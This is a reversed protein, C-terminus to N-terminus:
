GKKFYDFFHVAHKDVCPLCLAIPDDHWRAQIVSQMLLQIRLTTVLWGKEAAIDIMAQLVRIAQDLVSKTDTGYDTNPLPLRSFHAQM